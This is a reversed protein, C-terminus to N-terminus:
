GEYGEEFLPINETPVPEIEPEPEDVIVEVDEDVIAGTDMVPATQEAATEQTAEVLEANAGMVGVVGIILGLVFVKKM